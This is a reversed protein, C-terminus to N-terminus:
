ADNPDTVVTHTHSGRCTQVNTIYKPKTIDTVDFVRVGRLRDQSVSDPVGQLGCDLRGATAEGSVFALNKYVSVDSQSGPCVYAEKIKVKAPNSVDWVQYGSYNGQIVYNGVFALDSNVLRRDGPTSLNLFDKSPRTNSVLRMNWAAEGADFWGPKLGVRPDPSPKTMSVIAKSGNPSPAGGASSSSTSACAAATLVGAAVSASILLPLIMLPSSRSRSVPFPSLNGSNSESGLLM